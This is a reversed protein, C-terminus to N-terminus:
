EVVYLTKDVESLRFYGYAFNEEATTNIINGRINAPPTGFPGSEEAELILSMYNDFRESIGSLSIDISDGAELDEHSFSDFMENGQTFKDSDIDYEPNVLVDADFRAMYHNDEEANDQYYFTVEIEDGGFGTENDQEIRTIGPVSILQESATYTQEDVTVTLEYTEGIVPIFNTCVYIGTGPTEKFDFRTGDSNTISVVANSVPPIESTYYDTTTSLKVTQRSGDTGKVWGIGADIVLRPEATDLDVNVTDECSTLGALVVFLFIYKFSAM